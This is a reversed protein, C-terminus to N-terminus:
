IVEVKGGAAEIKQAATKTFGHARVTVSKQLEGNGLVRVGDRVNKLVGAEVLQAAFHEVFRSVSKPARGVGAEAAQASAETM